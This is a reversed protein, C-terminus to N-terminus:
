RVPTQGLPWTGQTNPSLGGCARLLRHQYRKSWLRSGRQCSEEWTPGGQLCCLVPGYTREVQAFETRMLNLCSCSPYLPSSQGPESAQETGRRTGRAAFAGMATLPDAQSRLWM